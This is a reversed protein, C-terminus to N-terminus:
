SQSLTTILRQTLRSYRVGTDSTNVAMEVACPETLVLVRKKARTVATYLLNRKLMSSPTSPLVVVVNRFESGQSRHITMAYALELDDINEQPLVFTKSTLKIAIGEHSIDQIIGLDGNYYGVNYNNSLLVVKDGVRFVKSGHKQEKKEVSAPNLLNQLLNNLAYVGNKGKRTPCLFQLEFLNNPNWLHLAYMMSYSAIDKEEITLTVYEDNEIFASIGNNIRYANQIIPSQLGQRYVTRLQVKPIVDSALMDSLVNGPGVSPLQDIDGVFLVLAGSPVASLFINAIEIDIMSTEDVVFFDGELPNNEDRHTIDNGFPAYELLRHITTAEKGTCESMRQSARGTPACLVVKKDPNLKKYAGILGNIVTSKGTGPGGTVIIVGSRKLLSFCAKQEPAYTIKTDSCNNEAWEVINDDYNLDVSSDQLRRINNAVGTEAKFLSSSYIAESGDDLYDFIFSSNNELGRIFLTAPVMETFAGRKLIKQAEKCLVSEYSHTHGQQVCRKMAEILVYHLRRKDTADLGQQKSYSDAVIFDVKCQACVEYPNKNLEDIVGVSYKKVMKSIDNWSAGYPRLLNFLERHIGSERVSDYLIAARELSLGTISAFDEVSHTKVYGLVDNECSSVVKIAVTETIGDCVNTLFQVASLESWTEETISEAIIYYGQKSRRIEGEIKLPTFPKYTPIIGFVLMEKSLIDYQKKLEFVDDVVLLFLSEGTYANRKIIKKFTGRVEVIHKEDSMTLLGGKKM